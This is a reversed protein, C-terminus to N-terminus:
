MSALLRAAEGEAIPDVRYLAAERFAMLAEHKRGMKELIMGKLRLFYVSPTHGYQVNKNAFKTCAELAAQLKNQEILRSVKQKDAESDETSIAEVPKKVYFNEVKIDPKHNMWDEWNSGRWYLLDPDPRLRYIIHPIIEKFMEFITDPTDKSDAIRIHPAKILKARERLGIVIMIIGLPFMLFGLLACLGAGEFIEPAFIQIGIAVAGLVVLIVGEVWNGKIKESTHVRWCEECFWLNLHEFDGYTSIKSDTKFLPDKNRGTVVVAYMGEASEKRCLECKM